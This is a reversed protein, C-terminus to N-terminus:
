CVHGLQPNRFETKVMTGVLQAGRQCILGTYPSCDVIEYTQALWIAGHNTASGGHGALLLRSRSIPPSASSVLVPVHDVMFEATAKGAQSTQTRPSLSERHVIMVTVLWISLATRVRVDWPRAAVGM